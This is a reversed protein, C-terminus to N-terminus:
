YRKKAALKEIKPRRKPFFNGLENTPSLVFAHIMVDKGAPLLSLM